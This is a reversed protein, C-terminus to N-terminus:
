EDMDQSVARGKGKWRKPRPEDENSDSKSDVFGNLGTAEATATIGVEIALDTSNEHEDDEDDDLLDQTDEAGPDAFDSNVIINSALNSDNGADSSERDSDDQDPILDAVRQKVADAHAAQLAREALMQRRAEHKEVAERHGDMDNVVKLTGEDLPAWSDLMDLERQVRADLIGPAEWRVDRAIADQAKDQLAAILGREDAADALLFLIHDVLEPPPDAPFPKIEAPRRTSADNLITPTALQSKRLRNSTNRQGQNRRRPFRSNQDTDSRSPEAQSIPSATRGSLRENARIELRRMERSLKQNARESVPPQKVTPPADSNKTTPVQSDQIVAQRPSETRLEREEVGRSRRTNPRTDTHKMTDTLDVDVLRLSPNARIELKRLERKLKASPRPGPTDVRATVPEVAEEDKAGRSYRKRKSTRRRPEKSQSVVSASDSSSSLRSHQAPAPVVESQDDSTDAAGPSLGGGPLFWYAAPTTPSSKADIKETEHARTRAINGPSEPAIDPSASEANKTRFRSTLSTRPRIPARSASRRQLSTTALGPDITETPPSGHQSSVSHSRPPTPPIAAIADKHGRKRKLSGSGGLAVNGDIQLNRLARSVKGSGSNEAPPIRDPATAPSTAGDDAGTLRRTNVM